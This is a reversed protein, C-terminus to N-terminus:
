TSQIQVSIETAYDVLKQQDQQNFREGDLRNFAM